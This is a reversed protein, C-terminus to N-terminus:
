VILIDTNTLATKNSFNAVQVAGLTGSGDADFSLLGSSRDYIFRDNTDLAAAGLVFQGVDLIGQVLGSGFGSASIQLKDGQQSVFDSIYDIGETPINLVFKDAGAGGSLVDNGTGGNLLDDGAGGYIRDNGAGGYLSDNGAIEQIVSPLEIIGHLYVKNPYNQAGVWFWTQEWNQNFWSVLVAYDEDDTYNNPEGFAWNRYTSTEGSIWQWQGETTHDTLGIWFLQNAEFRNAEVNFGDYNFGFTTNLWNQEVEDNITVLNGGLRQAEAQTNFWTGPQSLLYSHGNRTVLYDGYVIDNGDGGNVTDHGRGGWINNSASNGQIVNNLNNGYGNIPNTGDLELNELNDGLHYTISTYVKDIGQGAYEVITDGMSDVDLVYQDDGFGGKMRDRGSEGKLLDNGFGGYLNDNGYSGYLQDDGGGGYIRDNGAGGNLIDSEGIEPSVSPIEIIGRLHQNPYNQLDNWGQNGWGMVAYDEGDPISSSRYDNPEGPFWNRYTSTEGSVWQWQGEITRDSLGIWFM